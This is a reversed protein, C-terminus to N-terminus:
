LREMEGFSRFVHSDMAMGGMVRGGEVEHLSMLSGLSVREFWEQYLVDAQILDPYAEVGEMYSDSPARPIYDEITMLRPPDVPVLTEGGVQQLTREGM